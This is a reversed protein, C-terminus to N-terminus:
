YTFKVDFRGERIKITDTDDNENIADFQFTGSIINNVTDLKLITMFNNPNVTTRYPKFGGNSADVYGGGGGYRDPNQHNRYLTLSDSKILWGHSVKIDGELADDSHRSLDLSFGGWIRPDIGEIRPYYECDIGPKLGGGPKPLWLEGNVLCGATNLGETTIPPLEEPEPEIFPSEPGCNTLILSLGLILASNFITKFKM